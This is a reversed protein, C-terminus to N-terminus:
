PNAAIPSPAQLGGILYDVLHNLLTDQDFHSLDGLPTHTLWAVEAVGHLVNTTMFMLRLRRVPAPLEPLQEELAHDMRQWFPAYIANVIAAIDADNESVLRSLFHVGDTGWSQRAPLLVLPHLTDRCASRLSRKSPKEARQSNAIRRLERAIMEVLAQVVGLKNQFHYHMAASNKSGSETSIRRLSVAHLGERAYLRLATLLLRERTDASKEQASQAPATM